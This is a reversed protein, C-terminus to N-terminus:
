GAPGNRGGTAVFSVCDGQNKFVGFSRWGDKKCDDKSRPGVPLPSALSSVFSESFTGTGSGPSPTSVFTDADGRDTFRGGPADITAEYRLLGFSGAGAPNGCPLVSGPANPVNHKTGTVTGAPSEIRFSVDVVDDGPGTHSGTETFTGPYPGSAVGTAEWRITFGSPSGECTVDVDQPDAVLAQGTLTSPVQASAAPAPAWGLVAAVAAVLTIRVM